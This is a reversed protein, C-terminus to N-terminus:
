IMRMPSSDSKLYLTITEGNWTIKDLVTKIIERKQHVTFFPFTTRLSTVKGIFSDDTTKGCVAQDPDRSQRNNDERGTKQSEKKTEEKKLDAYKEEIEQCQEQLKKMEAEIQGIFEPSHTGTSLTHILNRIQKKKEKLKQKLIEEESVPKLYTFKGKLCNYTNELIDNWDINEELYISVAECIQEDLTNGQINPTQCKQGHTLTKCPCIYSFRRKGDAGTQKIGYYKPRMACGCSCQLIGSLLAIENRARYSDGKRKNNELLEQVKVFDKGPIIGKHKGEALIWKEPPNEKHGSTTKAYCIFGRNLEEADINKSGTQGYHNVGFSSEPKTELVLNPKEVCVQCGLSCFYEYGERDARCYVPNRLIDRIATVTYENQKRTYIEHMQLHEAVKVLSQKELYLRFIYRVITIEDANEQLYWTKRTKGDLLVKKEEASSFGFPTNGGLWRGSKALMLMNDRVREAIQEREMQALVGAFYLMAKGMPTSTDFHEKISVFSIGLRNLEEVLTALDIINRGLRDLRYCILYDYKKQHIDEMLRQFRPRRTNKGSFGEDEYILVESESGNEVHRSIYERCMAVQNEVSDGRGTWRSKRSYIAIRM